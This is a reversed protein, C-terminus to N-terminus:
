GEKGAFGCVQEWGSGGHSPYAQWRDNPNSGVTRYAKCQSREQYKLGYSELEVRLKSRDRRLNWALCALVRWDFSPKEDGEVEEVYAEVSAYCEETPDLGGFRGLTELADPPTYM